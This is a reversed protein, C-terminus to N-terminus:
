EEKGKREEKRHAIVSSSNGYGPKALQFTPLCTQADYVLGSQKRIEEAMERIFGHSVPHGTVTLNTIWSVLAKEQARSLMQQVERAESRTKGGKFRRSLTT